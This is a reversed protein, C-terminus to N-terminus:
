DLRVSTLGSSTGDLMVAFVCRCGRLRFGRYTQVAIVFIRTGNREEDARVTVKAIDFRDNPVDNGDVGTGASAPHGPAPQYRATLEPSLMDKFDLRRAGAVALRSSADATTPGDRAPSTSRARASASPTSATM